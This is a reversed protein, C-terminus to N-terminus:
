LPFFGTSINIVSAAWHIQFKVASFFSADLILLFSILPFICNLCLEFTKKLSNTLCQNDIQNTERCSIIDVNKQQQAAQQANLLHVFLKKSLLCCLVTSQVYPIVPVGYFCPREQKWSFLSSPYM